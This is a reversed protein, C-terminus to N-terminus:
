TTDTVTSALTPDVTLKFVSTFVPVTIAEGTVCSVAVSVVGIVSATVGSTTVVGSTVTLSFVPTTNTVSGSVLVAKTILLVPSACTTETEGSVLTPEVTFKVVSTFVPVTVAEGTVCSVTVCGTTSEVVGTSVGNICVGTVAVGSTVMLSFVATTNAVSGAVFVANTM